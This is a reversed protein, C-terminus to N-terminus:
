SHSIFDLSLPASNGLNMQDCYRKDDHMKVKKWGMVTGYPQDMPQGTTEVISAVEVRLVDPQFIQLGLQETFMYVYVSMDRAETTIM